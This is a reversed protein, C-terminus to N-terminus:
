SGLRALGWVAAALSPYLTMAFATARLWPWAHYGLWFLLRAVVFALALALAVEPAIVFAVAPWVMVALMVQETTNALVRADVLGPHDPPFPQGDAYDESLFRRLGVRVVMLALLLGLGLGILALTGVLGAGPPLLGPLWGLVLATWIMGLVMGGMTATRKPTFFASM